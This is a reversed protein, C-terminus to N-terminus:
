TWLGRRELETQGTYSLRYMGHRMNLLGKRHLRELAKEGYTWVFWPNDMAQADRGIQELDDLQRETLRM